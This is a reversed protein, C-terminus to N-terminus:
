ALPQCIKETFLWISLIKLKTPWITEKVVVLNQLQLMFAAVSLLYVYPFTKHELLVKNIFEPLPSSKAWPGCNTSGQCLGHLHPGSFNFLIAALLELVRITSMFRSFWGGLIKSLQLRGNPPFTLVDLDKGSIFAWSDRSRFSSVFILRNASSRLM